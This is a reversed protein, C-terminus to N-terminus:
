SGSLLVSSQSSCESRLGGMLRGPYSVKSLHSRQLTMKWFRKRVVSANFLFIKGQFILHSPDLCALSLLSFDNHVRAISVPQLSATQYVLVNLCSHWHPPKM